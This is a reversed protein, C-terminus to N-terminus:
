SHSASASRREHTEPSHRDPPAHESLKWLAELIMKRQEEALTGALAGTLPTIAERQGLEALYVWVEVGTPNARAFTLGVELAQDHPMLKLASVVDEPVTLLGQRIAQELRTLPAGDGPLGPHQAAGGGLKNMLMSMTLLTTTQQVVNFEKSQLLRSVDQDIYESRAPGERLSATALDMVPRIMGFLVDIFAQEHLKGLAQLARRRQDPTGMLTFFEVFQASAGDDITTLAKNFADELLDPALAHVAFLATGSAASKMQRGMSLLPEAASRDGLISLAMGAAAVAADNSSRLLNVLPAVAGRFRMAGLASAASVVETEIALHRILQQGLAAAVETSALETLVRHARGQAQKLVWTVFRALIEEQRARGVADGAETMLLTALPVQKELAETIYSDEGEIKTALVQEVFKRASVPRKQVLVLYGVGLRLVEEWRPEFLHALAVEEFREEAHLGAAVFFEQFTLHLFGWAGAGREVLIQVEEGAKRLFERAARKAEDGEARGLDRMASELTTLVFAEPAVGTPHAEHMALALRGLIPLAEQEYDLDPESTDQGAVLRRAQGWTECLARAFLEYLQVRHRPLRGEARQVLTLASLLFPNRALGALRQNAGIATLLRHTEEDARADERVGLEWAMYHRHFTRVYHDVQADTLPLLAWESSRPLEIGTYGVHRSTVIFRNDAYVAAFAEIWRYLDQREEARVEDLGDLLVLCQGTELAAPLFARLDVLSAARRNALYRVIAELAPAEDGLERRVEALRGVSLLLPLRREYVGLLGHTAAGGQATAAALWRLLTTKGTGPDGLVVLSHSQQFAEHFDRAEGVPAARSLDRSVGAFPSAGASSLASQKLVATLVERQVPTRRGSPEVRLPEFVEMLDLAPPERRQLRLGVYRLRTVEPSRAYARLSDWLRLGDDSRLATRDIRAVAAAPFVYMPLTDGMTVGALTLTVREDERLALFVEESVLIATEPALRELKACAEVGPGQFTGPDELWAAQGVHAVIRTPIQLELWARQWLAFALQWAREGLSEGTVGLTVADGEWTLPETVGFARAIAEVGRTYRTRRAMGEPEALAEPSPPHALAIRVLSLLSTPTTM